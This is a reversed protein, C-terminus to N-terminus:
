RLGRRPDSKQALHRAMNSLGCSRPNARGLEDLDLPTAAPAGPRARLSYLAIM